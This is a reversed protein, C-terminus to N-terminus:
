FGVKRTEGLDPPEGTLRAKAYGYVYVMMASPADWYEASDVEVKILAIDSEEPGGPFWVRAAESWFERVKAQDRVIEARGRASVYNQDKPEAYAVLVNTSARLEDLKASDGATMFWLAGDFTKNVASMPRAALRGDSDQTVFMAVRINKILDWVKQRAEISQDM